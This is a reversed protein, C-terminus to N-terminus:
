TLILNKNRLNYTPKFSESNKSLNKFIMEIQINRDLNTENDTAEVFNGMLTIMHDKALTDPKQEANMLSNIALQLALTAYCGIM